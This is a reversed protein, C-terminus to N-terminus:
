SNGEKLDWSSVVSATSGRVTVSGVAFRSNNNHEVLLGSSLNQQLGDWTEEDDGGNVIGGVKRKGVTGHNNRRTGESAFGVGSGDGGVGHGCSVIGCNSRVGAVKISGLGANNDETILNGEGLKTENRKGSSQDDGDNSGVGVL